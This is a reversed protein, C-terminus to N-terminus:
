NRARASQLYSRCSAALLAEFGTVIYRAGREQWQVAAQANPVLIGLAKDTPKVIEIIQNMVEQVRPHQLEGPLGLSHSLDSPGIFVVDIDPVQVIEALREVGAVTEVQAIILTEANARATYDKFTFGPTQGYSAARSAALGRGGRPGFKASQVAYEAEQATNVMPIQVGQVGTDLYRLTVAAQNTTVRVLPTLGHLEAARVLNECDSPNLTGHEGDLLVFDWGQQGLVEVLGPEPYRYFCGFVTEGAKLRAKTQNTRM